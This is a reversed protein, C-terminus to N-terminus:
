RPPPGAMCSRTAPCISRITSAGAVTSGCSRAPVMLTWARAALLGARSRAWRGSWRRLPAARIEMERGPEREKRGLARRLRDISRSLAAAIPSGPRCAPTRARSASNPSSMKGRSCCVGCATVANSLLGFDCVHHGIMLAALDLAVSGAFGCEMMGDDKCFVTLVVPCCTLVRWSHNGDGIEAAPPPRRRGGRRKRRLM